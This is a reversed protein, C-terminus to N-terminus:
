DFLYIIENKNKAKQKKKKQKQNLYIIGIPSTQKDKVSFDNSKLLKIM